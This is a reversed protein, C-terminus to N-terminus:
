NSGSDDAASRSADFTTGSQLRVQEALMTVFTRVKQPRFRAAPYVAHIGGSPLEWEPLLRVLRGAYLHDSVLFDPLIALGGQVLCAQMVAPTADISIAEKLTVLRREVDGRSFTWTLPERLATNAVLPVGTLDEPAKLKLKAAFEPAAVLFQRFTGIRRAQLSSDTLWGVRISLDVQKEILDLKNDSILLEVDCAPYKRRFAAALPAITITGYDNPAAIRLTGVPESNTEAIEATAEELEKLVPACRAHLRRGAETPEMRRTTRLLLTTKLEQELRAVQQSVVTKTVGLREAAHTFSGADVVSVFYALRNLNFLEM